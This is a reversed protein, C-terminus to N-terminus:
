MFENMADVFSKQKEEKRQPLENQSVVGQRVRMKKIQEVADDYDILFQKKGNPWYKIIGDRCYKRLLRLPFHTRECFEKTTVVNLREGSDLWRGCKRSPKIDKFNKLEIM